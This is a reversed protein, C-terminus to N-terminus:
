YVLKEDQIYICIYICAFAGYIGHTVDVCCGGPLMSNRGYIKVGKTGSPAIQNSQLTSIRSIVKTQNMNDSYTYCIICVTCVLWTYTM